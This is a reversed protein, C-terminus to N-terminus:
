ELVKVVLDPLFLALLGIMIAVVAFFIMNRSNVTKDTEGQATLYIYGAIVIFIGAIAFLVFQLIGAIRTSLEKVNNLTSIQITIPAPNTSTYSASAFLPITVFLILLIIIGMKLFNTM